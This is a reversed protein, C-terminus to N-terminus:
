SRRSPRLGLRRRWDRAGLLLSLRSLGRGKAPSYPYWQPESKLDMRGTLLAQTRCYKRIGDAGGYRSGVGSDRWGGHPVELQFINAMADNVLVAGVELRRALAAARERDQTWVTASLGYSSDNALELAEEADAVRMVPLLPGFTEERMCEMSHDVDALVTPEFFLGDASAHGGTVIRAGKAVADDVHQQVRELQAPTAVAGLETAFAGPEDMGQRLGGVREALRHLFADHVPAEVYIREVAICSQGANFLGGWTAGGAAREIDADALVLMADNGGLELSCPILHEGARAGVKRGTRVSGTFQVMDVLDVVAEGTEEGGTVCAVVAPAGLEETFGRVTEAWALPSVESPKSLVACGAMLAAAIDMMPMALPYNWPSIVGVLQHPRYSVNLKKAKAILGFPRPARDALHREATATYYNIVETCVQLEGATDGWSKGSEEQVLRLLRDRNDLLWDRWRSLWLARGRPGMAEWEAQADRLRDATAAVEAFSMSPVHGVVHGDAPCTVAIRARAAGETAAEIM